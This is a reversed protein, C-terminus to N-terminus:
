ILKTVSSLRRLRELTDPYLREVEDLHTGVLAIRPMRDVPIRTDTSGCKPMFAYTAVTNMWHSISSLSKMATNDDLIELTNFVVIFIGNRTIFFPHLSSFIEDGAFDFLSVV